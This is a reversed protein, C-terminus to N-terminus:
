YVEVEMLHFYDNKLDTLRVYRAKTPPFNAQWVEFPDDRMAVQRYDKQDRSVDIRLPVAREKCCDVRNYVDVRSVREVSGLDIIVFQNAGKNTHFGINTRNGDVLQAGKAPENPFASSTTVRRHLALNTGPAPPGALVAIGWVGAAVVSSALGIRLWRLLMTRRLRDVDSALGRHLQRAFQGLADTAERTEEESLQVLHNEDLSGGLMERLSRRRGDSLKGLETAVARVALLSAWYEDATTTAVPELGARSRHAAVFLATAARYLVFGSGLGRGRAALEEGDVMWASAMDFQRRGPAGRGFARQRAMAVREDMWFFQRLWRKARGLASSAAVKESQESM